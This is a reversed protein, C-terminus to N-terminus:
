ARDVTLLGVAVFGVLLSAVGGLGRDGIAVLQAARAIRGRTGTRAHRGVM